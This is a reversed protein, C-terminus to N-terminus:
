AQAELQPAQGPLGPFCPFLATDSHRRQVNRGGSRAQRSAALMMFMPYTNFRKMEFWSDM